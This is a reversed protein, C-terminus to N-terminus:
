DPLAAALIERVRLDIWSEDIPLAPRTTQCATVNVV